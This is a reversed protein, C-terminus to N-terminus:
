HKPRFLMSLEEDSGQLEYSWHFKLRDSRYFGIDLGYKGDVYGIEVFVEYYSTIRATFHQPFLVTSGTVLCQLGSEVHGENITDFDSPLEDLFLYRMGAKENLISAANCQLPRIRHGGVIRPVLYICPHREPEILGTQRLEEKFETLCFEIYVEVYESLSELGKLTLNDVNIKIVNGNQESFRVGM